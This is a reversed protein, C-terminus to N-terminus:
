LTRNVGKDIQNQVTNGIERLFHKSNNSIKMM